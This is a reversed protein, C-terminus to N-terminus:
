QFPSVCWKYFPIFKVIYLSWWIPELADSLTVINDIYSLLELSINHYQTKTRTDQDRFSKMALLCQVFASEELRTYKCIELWRLDDINEM